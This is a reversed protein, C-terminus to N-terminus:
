RYDCSVINKTCINTGLALDAYVYSYKAFKKTLPLTRCESSSFNDIDKMSFLQM